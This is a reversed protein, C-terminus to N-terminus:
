QSIERRPVRPDLEIRKDGIRIFTMRKFGNNLEESLVDGLAEYSPLVIRLFGQPMALQGFRGGRPPNPLWPAFRGGHINLRTQLRDGDQIQQVTFFMSVTMTRGYIEREMVVEILGQEIRVVVRKFSANDEFRGGQRGRLTRALWQNIEAETLTVPIQRSQSERLVASVDRGGESSNLGGVGSFDQPSVMFVLCALMGSITAAVFVVGVKYLFGSGEYEDDIESEEM